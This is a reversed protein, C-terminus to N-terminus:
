TDWVNTNETLYEVIVFGLITYTYTSFHYRYDKLSLGCCVLLDNIVNNQVISHNAYRMLVDALTKPCLQEANWNAIRYMILIIRKLYKVIWVHVDQWIRLHAPQAQAPFAPFTKGDGCSLSGSVCWPVRTVCTGYHMDPDSVKPKRQLRHRPFRERCERRIRVGCM